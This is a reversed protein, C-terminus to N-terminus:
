VKLGYGKRPLEYLFSVTQTNNKEVGLVKYPSFDLLKAGGVQVYPFPSYTYQKPWGATATYLCTLAKSVAPASVPVAPPVDPSEAGEPVQREKSRPRGQDCLPDLTKSHWFPTQRLRSVPAPGTLHLLITVLLPLANDESPLSGFSKEGKGEVGKLASKTVRRVDARGRQDEVRLPSTRTRRM